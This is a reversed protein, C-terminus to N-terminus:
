NPFGGDVELDYSGVAFFHAACFRTSSEMFLEHGVLVKIANYLKREREKDEGEEEIRCQRVLLDPVDETIRPM